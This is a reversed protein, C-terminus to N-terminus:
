GRPTSDALIRRCVWETALVLRDRTGLEFGTTRATAVMRDLDFPADFLAGEVEGLLALLGPIPPAHRSRRVQAAQHVTGLLPRFRRRFDDLAAVPRAPDHRRAWSEAAALSTRLVTPEVGEPDLADRIEEVLRGRLVVGVHALSIGDPQAPPLRDLVPVAPHAAGALAQHAAHWLATADVDGLIVTSERVVEPPGDPTHALNNLLNAAGLHTRLHHVAACRPNAPGKLAKLRAAVSACEAAHGVLGLLLSPGCTMLDAFVRIRDADYSQIQYKWIRRVDQRRLQRMRAFVVQFGNRHLWALATPVRGTAVCLPSLLLVATSRLLQGSREHQEVMALGRRFDPDQAYSVSPPAATM